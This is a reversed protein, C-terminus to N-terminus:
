FRGLSDRHSSLMHSFIAFHDLMAIEMVGVASGLLSLAVTSKDVTVLASASRMDQCTGEEEAGLLKTSVPSSVVKSLIVLEKSRDLHDNLVTQSSINESSSINWAENAFRGLLDPYPEILETHVIREEAGVTSNLIHVPLRPLLALPHLGDNPVRNILAVVHDM